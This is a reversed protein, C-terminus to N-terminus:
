NGFLNQKELNIGFVEMFVQDDSSFGTGPSGMNGLSPPINQVENVYNLDNRNEQNQIQTAMPQGHEMQYLAYLDTMKLKKGKGWEQFQAMKSDDLGTAAQFEKKQNTQADIKNRYQAYEGVASKAVTKMSENFVKASDSNPNKVAEDMDVVFDDPLGLKQLVNAPTKNGETYYEGMHNILNPDRQMANIIPEYAKYGELKQEMEKVKDNEARGAGSSAQYRAALEEYTLPKGDSGIIPQAPNRNVNSPNVNNQSTAQRTSQPTLNRDLLDLINQRAPNAPPEVVQVNASVGPSTQIGPQPQANVIPDGFLGERPVASQTMGQPVNTPQSAPQQSPKLGQGYITARPDPTGTNLNNPM